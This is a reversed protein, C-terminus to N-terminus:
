AGIEFDSLSRGADVAESIWAPRRGRGSWTLEPNEPHRYKAPTKPKRSRAVMGTLESLTFGNEQAAAEAAALAESRKRNEFSSIAKEVDKRLRKLEDLPMEDLNIEAM